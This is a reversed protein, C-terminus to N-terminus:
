LALSRDLTFGDRELWTRIKEGSLNGLNVSYENASTGNLIVRWQSHPIDWEIDIQAMGGRPHPFQRTLRLGNIEDVSPSDLTVNLMRALSEIGEILEDAEEGIVAGLPKARAYADPRGELVRDRVWCVGNHLKGLDFSLDHSERPYCVVTVFWALQDKDESGIQVEIKVEGGSTDLLRSLSLVQTEAYVLPPFTVYLEVGLSDMFEQLEYLYSNFQPPKFASKASAPAQLEQIAAQIERELSGALDSFEKLTLLRTRAHDATISRTRVDSLLQEAAKM